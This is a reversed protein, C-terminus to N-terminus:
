IKVTFSGVFVRFLINKPSTESLMKRVMHPSIPSWIKPDKSPGAFEFFLFLDGSIVEELKKLAFGNVLIDYDISELMDKEISLISLDNLKEQLMSSRLYTKLLKLKSVSREAYTAIDEIELYLDDLDVDTANEHSFTTHFKLSCQRLENDTLLKLSKADFLLGFISEFTKLNDFRNKLLTIAIDVEVLFINIRFSKEHSQVDEEIDNEDFSKKRYKSIKTPFKAKVCNNSAIKKAINLSTEFEVIRYNEFISMRSELQQIASGVCISSSQLIKSIKSAAKRILIQYLNVTLNSVNDLLIKRRKTSSSFLIFIRQVVDFFLVTKISYQIMDCIILNLSHCVYAMYWARPNVELLRKQVGQHKGKMNSGNDYGQGRVDNVNLDLLKFHILCSVLTRIWYIMLGLFILFYEEIKIKISSVNVCRVILTMQEQHSVDLTFDLIKSFYEAQKIIKLISSRVCSALMSILENKIKHGLYHYHIESNQIRRVHDQM